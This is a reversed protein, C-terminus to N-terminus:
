RCRYQIQPWLTLVWCELFLAITRGAAASAEYAAIFDGKASVAGEPAHWYCQLADGVAVCLPLTELSWGIGPTQM